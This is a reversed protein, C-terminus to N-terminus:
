SGSCLFARGRKKSSFSSPRESPKGMGGAMNPTYSASVREAPDRGLVGLSVRRSRTDEVDPVSAPGLMRRQEPTLNQEFGDFALVYPAEKRRRHSQYGDDASM